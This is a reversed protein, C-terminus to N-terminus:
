RHARVFIETCGFDRGFCIQGLAVGPLSRMYRQTFTRGVEEVILGHRSAMAAILEGPYPRVHTTDLWFLQTLTRYDRMNPTVVM